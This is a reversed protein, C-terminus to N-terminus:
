SYVFRRVIERLNEINQLDEEYTCILNKHQVYGIKRYEDLRKIMKNYYDIDNILGCHEWIVRKGDPRLIVFDPYMNRGGIILEPEYMYLLGENELFSGIFRESKSRMSVGDETKYILGDKNFPNHSFRNNYIRLEDESLALKNSDLMSYRELLKDTKSEADIDNLKKFMEELARIKKATVKIKESVFDKRALRYIREKDKTIGRQVGNNYERFFIKGDNNRIHLKGDGLLEMETKLRSLQQLEINLNNELCNLMM